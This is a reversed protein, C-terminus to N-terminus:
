DRYNLPPDRDGLLAEYHYDGVGRIFEARAEQIVSPNMYLDIATLAITKAAVMMGKIGIGTGGCAVAQWSHAPTGPIWTAAEIGVMPVAYSVDGVDTSALGENRPADIPVISGATEIKPVEFAFTSQLKQGFATQEASYTIGGVRSLNVQAVKALTRNILLEHVGGIIEYDTSTGTGLAAGKSADVLRAFLEKVVEKDPHRVYYYVEAFDPVINPATGGRTIVYHMRSEQPIHERMLNAMFDMAELADLASRGKDPASAAHAAKGYFRFKASINALSSTLMIENRDSPHWHLVADLGKFLGARVMYVKGSGGEEAPCGFLRITGKIQNSAILEKLTIAAAVSATGLLHHGCGHGASQGEIPRKEPIAEQSLGPLADYEALIGIVPQGSGYSAVFATPIGAVGTEVNFGKARLVDELLSSSKEEKYGVEAFNWIQFAIDRYYDGRSDIKELASDKLKEVDKRQQAFSLLPILLYVIFTLSQRM